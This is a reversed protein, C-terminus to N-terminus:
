GLLVDAIAESIPFNPPLMELWFFEGAPNVELFVYEEDPTVIVDIAGYTLQFHAMLQLLKEKVILPLDYNKWSALLGEGDKRWDMQSKESAQSDISACFVQNGVVTVRLEVKKTIKEQFTMPCYRLSDMKELDAESIENTFVVNEIGDEYIAFSAQMKTILGNPCQHYLDKVAKPSNTFLTKPIQLGVKEAIKLQLEKIEAYRITPINDLVFCDLSALFGRFTRRTEEISPALFKEDLQEKLKEGYRARRYWVATVESLNYLTNHEDRYFLQQQGNIYQTTLEVDTPYLDTNFRIVEGGKQRIANTVMEISENDQSYTIILIKKM